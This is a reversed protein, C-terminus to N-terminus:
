KLYDIEKNAINRILNRRNEAELIKKVEHRLFFEMEEFLVRWNVGVRESGKRRFGEDGKVGWTRCLDEGLLKVRSGWYFESNLFDYDNEAPISITGRILLKDSKAREEQGYCFIDIILGNKYHIKVEKKM